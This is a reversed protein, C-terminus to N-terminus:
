FFYFALNIGKEVVDEKAVNKMKKKEGADFNVVIKL